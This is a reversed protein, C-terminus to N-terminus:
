PEMELMVTFNSVALKHGGGGGIYRWFELVDGSRALKIINGTKNKEDFSEEPIVSGEPTKERSIGKSTILCKVTHLKHEALGFLDVKAILLSKSDKTRILKLVITGKQNGWGQDKWECSATIRRLIPVDIASTNNNSASPATVSSPLPPLSFYLKYEDQQTAFLNFNPGHKCAWRPLQMSFARSVGRILYDEEPTFFSLIHCFIDNIEFINDLVENHEASEVEHGADEHHDEEKHDEQQM